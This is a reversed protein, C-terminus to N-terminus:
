EKADRIRHRYRQDLQGSSKPRSRLFGAAALVVAALIPLAQSILLKDRDALSHIWNMFDTFVLSTALLNAGALALASCLIFITSRNM